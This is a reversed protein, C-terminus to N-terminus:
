LRRRSMLAEKVIHKVYATDFPKEIYGYAGTKMLKIMANAEVYGTLIIVIINQDIKKIRELILEGNADPIAMDLLVLNPKKKRCINVAEKGTTAASVRYGYQSLINKVLSCMGPEDDAVLINIKKHM